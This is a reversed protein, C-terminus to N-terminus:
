INSTHSSCSFMFRFFPQIEECNQLVYIIVAEYEDDKLYRRKSNGSPRAPHKFISLVDERENVNGGDDNRRVRTSNTLVHPEFYHSCFNSIEEMIYAECISSEM